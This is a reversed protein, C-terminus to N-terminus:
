DSLYCTIFFSNLGIWFHMRHRGWKGNSSVTIILCINPSRLNKRRDRLNCNESVWDAINDCFMNRIYVMILKYLLKFPSLVETHTFSFSLSHAHVCVCVCMFCVSIHKIRKNQWIERLLTILVGSFTNGTCKYVYVRTPWIKFYLFRITFFVM